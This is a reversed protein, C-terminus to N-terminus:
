TDIELHGKDYFTNTLAVRGFRHCFVHGKIHGGYEHSSIKQGGLDRTKNLMSKPKDIIKVHGWRKRIGDESRSVDYQLRAAKKPKAVPHDKMKEKTINLGKKQNNVAAVRDLFTKEKKLVEKWQLERIRHHFEDRRSADHSGFGLKRDKLPQTDMYGCSTNYVDPYYKVKHFCGTDMNDNGMKPYHVKIPALNKETKVRPKVYPDGISIWTDKTPTCMPHKDLKRKSTYM